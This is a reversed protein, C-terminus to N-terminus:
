ERPVTLLAVGSAVLPGVFLVLTFGRTLLGLNPNGPLGLLWCAAVAAALLAASACLLGRRSMSHHHSPGENPGRKVARKQNTFLDM